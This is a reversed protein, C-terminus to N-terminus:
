LRSQREWLKLYRVIQNMADFIACFLGPLGDRFGQKLFYRRVFRSIPRLILFRLHNTPSIQVGAEQLYDAEVGTYFDFKRLFQSIDLYPYHCLANKLIGVQGDVQLKEHVHRNPFFAKGRRFLRLQFDPYQSGHQLWYGFYHNKRPLKFASVSPNSQITSNVEQILHESIREDPDLYFIWDGKAQDMAFSKNVNLNRNNSREFTKCGFKEAIKLSDDKSECDVYIIEEAFSLSPLLAELHLAENHGIITIILSVLNEFNTSM